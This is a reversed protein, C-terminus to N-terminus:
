NGGARNWFEPSAMHRIGELEEVEGRGSPEPDIESRAPAERTQDNGAREGFRRAGLNMQDFAVRLLSGEQAFRGPHRPCRSDDLGHPYLFKHGVKRGNR